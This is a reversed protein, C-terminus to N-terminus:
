PAEVRRFRGLMRATRTAARLRERLSLSLSWGLLTQDVEFSARELEDADWGPEDGDRADEALSRRPKPPASM